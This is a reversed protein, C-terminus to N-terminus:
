HQLFNEEKQLKLSTVLRLYDALLHIGVEKCTSLHGDDDVYKQVVTAKECFFLNSPSYTVDKEAMERNHLTFVVVTPFYLYNKQTWFVCVFNLSCFM